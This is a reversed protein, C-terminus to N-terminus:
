IFIQQINFKAMSGDKLPYCLTQKQTAIFFHFSLFILDIQLNFHFVQPLHLPHSFDLSLFIANTVSRHIKKHRSKRSNGLKLNTILM